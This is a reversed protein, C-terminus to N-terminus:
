CKLYRHVFQNAASDSHFWAHHDRLLIPAVRSGSSADPRETANVETVNRSVFERAAEDLQDDLYRFDFVTGKELACFVRPDSFWRRLLKDKFKSLSMGLYTPELHYVFYRILRNDLGHWSSTFPHSRDFTASSSRSKRGYAITYHTALLATWATNYANLYFDLSRSPERLDRSFNHSAVVSVNFQLLSLSEPCSLLVDFDITGDPNVCPGLSVFRCLQM